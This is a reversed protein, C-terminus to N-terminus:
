EGAAVVKFIEIEADPIPKIAPHHSNGYALMVCGGSLRAIEVNRKGNV